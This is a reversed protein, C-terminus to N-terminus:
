ISKSTKAPCLFDIDDYKVGYLKEFKKVMVINPVTTGREYGSLSSTSIGLRKAAEAQTLGLNVRLAKLRM